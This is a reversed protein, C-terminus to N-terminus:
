SYMKSEDSVSMKIKKNFPLHKIIELFFKTRVKELSLNGEPIKVAMQFSNGYKYKHVAVLIELLFYKRLIWYFTM